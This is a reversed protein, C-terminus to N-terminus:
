YQWPHCYFSCTHSTKPTLRFSSNFLTCPRASKLGERFGWGNELHTNKSACFVQRDICSVATYEIIDKHEACPHAGFSWKIPKPSHEFGFNFVACSTCNKFLQLSLAARIRCRLPRATQAASLSKEGGFLDKIRETGLIHLFLTHFRCFALSRRRPTKLTSSPHNQGFLEVV